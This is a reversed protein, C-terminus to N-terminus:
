DPLEAEPALGPIHRTRRLAYKIEITAMRDLLVEREDDTLGACADRLRAALSERARRFRDERIELQRREM